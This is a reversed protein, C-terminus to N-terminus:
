TRLTHILNIHSFYDYAFNHTHRDAHMKKFLPLYLGNTLKEVLAEKETPPFSGAEDWTTRTYTYIMGLRNGTPQLSACLGCRAVWMERAM